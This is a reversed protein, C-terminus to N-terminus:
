IREAYFKSITNYSFKDEFDGALARKAGSDGLYDLAEVYVMGAHIGGKDVQYDVKGNKNIIQLFEEVSDRLIEREGEIVLTNGNNIPDVKAWHEDFNTNTFTLFNNIVERDLDGTYYDGMLTDRAGLDGTTDVGHKTPEVPATCPEVWPSILVLSKPQPFPQRSFNFDFQPFLAFQKASEEPYSIYRSVSLALHTGASDGVLHINKYGNSLLENYARLTEWLQTPYIHDHLTLSYDVILISTKKRTEEPLSYYFAIFTVFQSEFINLLYGGGHLYVIVDEKEPGEAENQVIWYSREELKKGFNNLGAVM